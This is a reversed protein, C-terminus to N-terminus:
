LSEDGVTRVPVFGVQFQAGVEVLVEVIVADDMFRVLPRSHQEAFQEFIVLLVRLRHAFKHLRQNGLVPQLTGDAIVKGTHRIAEDDELM